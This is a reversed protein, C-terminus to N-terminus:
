FRVGMGAVPEQTLLDLWRYGVDLSLRDSVHFALTSTQWSLRIGRGSRM